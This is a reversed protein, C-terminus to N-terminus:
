RDSLSMFCVQSTVNTAAQVHHQRENYDTISCLGDYVVVGHRREFFAFPFTLTPVAVRFQDDFFFKASKLVM